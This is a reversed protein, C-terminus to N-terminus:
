CVKVTNKLKLSAKLLYNVYFNKMIAVAPDDGDAFTATTSLTATVALKTMQDKETVDEQMYRRWLNKCLIKTNKSSGLM